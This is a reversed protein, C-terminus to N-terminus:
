IISADASLTERDGVRRSHAEAIANLLTSRKVPKTVHLDFGAEKTHRVAEDLASATLANIPTHARDTSAEWARINRVATYGDMEPMQIDMLILDYHGARAMETAVKGDQAEDLRYPTKRLYARVLLRNDPSDDAMLIRLPADLITGHDRVAHVRSVLPPTNVGVAETMARAIAAYLESRKIPKVIYCGIGLSRVKVLTEPLDTSTLMMITLQKAPSLERIRRVMELGDMEPM